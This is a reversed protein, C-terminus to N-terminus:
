KVDSDATFWRGLKGRDVVRYKGSRHLGIIINLIKTPIAYSSMIRWMVNRDLSDFAQNSDVFFSYLTNSEVSQEMIIRSTNINDDCSIHSIFGAREKRHISELVKSIRCHMIICLIKNIKNLLTIGRWHRCIVTVDGRNNAM